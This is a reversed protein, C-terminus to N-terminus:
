IPPPAYSKAKSLPLFVGYLLSLTFVLVGLERSYSLKKPKESANLLSFQNLISTFVFAFLVYPFRTEAASSRIQDSLPNISFLIAALSIIIIIYKGSYRDSKHKSDPDDAPPYAWRFRLDNTYTQFTLFAVIAQLLSPFNNVVLTSLYSPDSKLLSLPGALSIQLLDLLPTSIFMDILVTIIYRAFTPESLKSFIYALWSSFSSSSLQLGKDTGLAIDFIYGFIPAFIFGYNFIIYKNPVNSRQMIISGVALVLSTLISVFTGRNKERETKGKGSHKWNAPNAFIYILYSVSFVVALVPSYKLMSSTLSM